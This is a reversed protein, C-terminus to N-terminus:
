RINRGIKIIDDVLAWNSTLDKLVFCELVMDDSVEDVPLTGCIYRSSGIDVTEKQVSIDILKDGQYLCMIIVSDINDTSENKITLGANYTGVELMQVSDESDNKKIEFKGFEAEREDISEVKLNFLDVCGGPYVVIDVYSVENTGAMFKLGKQVLVGDFLIDITKLDLDLYVTMKYQVGAELNAILHDGASNRHRLKLKEIVGFFANKNGSADKIIFAMTSNGYVAFDFEYKLYTNTLSSHNRTGVISGQSSTSNVRMWHNQLPNDMVSVSGQEMGNQYKFSWESNVTGDEFTDELICSNQDAFVTSIIGILIIIVCPIVLHKKM